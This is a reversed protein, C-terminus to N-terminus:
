FIFRHAYQKNFVSTDVNQLLCVTLNFTSFINLQATVIDVVRTEELIPHIQKLFLPPITSNTGLM